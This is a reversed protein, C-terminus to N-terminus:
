RNSKSIWLEKFICIVLVNFKERPISITPGGDSQPSQWELTDLDKCPCADGKGNFSGELVRSAKLPSPPHMRCSKLFLDRREKRGTLVPGSTGLYTLMRRLQKWETGKRITALVTRAKYGSHEQLPAQWSSRPWRRTSDPARGRCWKCSWSAACSARSSKCGSWGRCGSRRWPQALIWEGVPSPPSVTRLHTVTM